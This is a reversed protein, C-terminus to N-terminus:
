RVRMEGLKKRCQEPCEERRRTIDVGQIPNVNKVNMTGVKTGDLEDMLTAFDESVIEVECEKRALNSGESVSVNWDRNWADLIFFMSEKFRYRKQYFILRSRPSVSLTVAITQKETTDFTKEQGEITVSIAKYAQAVSYGTDVENGKTIRFDTTYTHTFTQTADTNNKWTMKSVWTTDILFTDVAAYLAHSWFIFYIDQRRSKVLADGGAPKYVTYQYLDTELQWFNTTFLCIYNFLIDFNVVVM